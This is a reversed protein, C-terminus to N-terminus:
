VSFTPLLSLLAALSASLLGILWSAGCADCAGCVGCFVGDYAGGDCVGGCRLPPLCSMKKASAVECQRPFSMKGPFTQFSVRCLFNPFNEQIGLHVM